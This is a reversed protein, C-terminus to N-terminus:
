GSPDKDSKSNAERQRLSLSILTNGIQFIINNIKQARYVVISLTM